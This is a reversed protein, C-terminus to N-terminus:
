LSRADSVGLFKLFGTHFALNVQRANPEVELVVVQGERSVTGLRVSLAEVVEESTVGLSLLSDVVLPLEIARTWKRGIADFSADLYPRGVLFQGLVVHLFETGAPVAVEFHLGVLRDHM